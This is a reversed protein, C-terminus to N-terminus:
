SLTVWAGSNAKMNSMAEAVASVFDIHSAILHDRESIIEEKRVLNEEFVRKLRKLNDLATENATKKLVTRLYRFIEETANEDTEVLDWVSVNNEEVSEQVAESFKEDEASDNDSDVEDEASKTEEWITPQIDISFSAKHSPRSRVYDLEPAFFENAFDGMSLTMELMRNRARHDIMTEIRRSKPVPGYDDEEDFNDDNEDEDNEEESNSAEPSSEEDSINSSVVTSINSSEMSRQMLNKRMSAELTGQVEFSKRSASQVSKPARTKVSSNFYLQPDDSFAAMSPLEPITAIREQTGGSIGPAKLANQPRSNTNQAPTTTGSETRKDRQALQETLTPMMGSQKRFNTPEQKNYVNTDETITTEEMDETSTKFMFNEHEEEDSISFAFAEEEEMALVGFVDEDNLDESREVHEEEDDGRSNLDEESEESILKEEIKNVPKENTVKKTSKSEPLQAIMKSFMNMSPMEPMKM